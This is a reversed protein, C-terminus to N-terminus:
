LNRYISRYLNGGNSRRHGLPVFVNPRWPPGNYGRVTQGLGNGMAL